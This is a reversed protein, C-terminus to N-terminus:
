AKSTYYYIVSGSMVLIGLLVGASWALWGLRRRRRVVFDNELLPISGLVTLKTYARVDKLNKLSSDKMERLGTAVLGLVIGASLGALIILPRKPAYPETPMNAPELIELTEGQNRTELETAMSSDRLKTNVQEYRERILERDRLLQMYEQQMAPSSELKAQLQRIRSQADALQRRVDEAEMDKAQIASEVRAKAAMLNQIDADRNSRGTAAPTVPLQGSAAAAELSAALQERQRRKATLLSQTRQVDPHNDRYTEKLGTLTADLRMIERDLEALEPNRAAPATSGGVAPASGPEPASRAANLQDAVIRLQTELQLKEQGVRSLSLNLNQIGTELSSIRNVMVQEQEPLQTRNSLRMATIKNEIEDLERKATEVQDRLFQTTLVSQKTRSSFGEDIFKTILRETVRQTQRRDSYRYSINFAAAGTRDGRSSLGRLPSINIDKRMLEVVDEIPLRKREAPYLNFSQILDILNPRSVIEQYLQNVRQSMEQSVNAQVLRQPVVPPVVRIMGSSMYSDPWLYAVVVGLVLGIFAPGLIWSRHRRVIELYDEVDLARRPVSLPVENTNTTPTM